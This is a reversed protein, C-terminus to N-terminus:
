RAADLVEIVRPDALFTTARPPSLGASISLVAAAAEQFRESPDSGTAALAWGLAELAQWRIFPSGIAEAESVARRLQGTAEPALGAALLTRGLTIRALAEYKKRSSAAALEMARMAWTQAEEIRERALDLDARAAAIRGSILWREWAKSTVADDWLSDWDNEAAALDGKMVKAVFVDARANMWPMNFDSPGLRLAVDESRVLAEELAFVERLPLTSYNIVVNVPRGMDRGLEIANEAAAIAEEYRGMGALIIGQMGAGRLTYEQSYPEV